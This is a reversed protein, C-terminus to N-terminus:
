LNYNQLYKEIEKNSIQYFSNDDMLERIEDINNKISNENIIINNKVLLDIIFDMNEPGDALRIYLAICDNMIKGYKKLIYIHFEDPLCGLFAFEDKNKDFSLIFKDFMKYLAEKLERSDSYNYYEDFIYTDLYEGDDVTLDDVKFNNNNIKDLFKIFDKM